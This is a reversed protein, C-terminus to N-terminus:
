KERKDGRLLLVVFAVIFGIPGFAWAAAALVGLFFLVNAKNNM